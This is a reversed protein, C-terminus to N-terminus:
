IFERFLTMSSSGPAAHCLCSQAVIFCKGAVNRAPASWWAADFFDTSAIPWVFFLIGEKERGVERGVEAKEGM